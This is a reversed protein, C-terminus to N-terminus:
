PMDPLRLAASPSPATPTIPTTPATTNSSEASFAYSAAFVSGSLVFCVSSVLRAFRSRPIATPAPTTPTAAAPAGVQRQTDPPECSRAAVASTGVNSWPVVPTAHNPRKQDQRQERPAIQVERRRGVGAVVDDGVGRDDTARRRRAHRGVAARR